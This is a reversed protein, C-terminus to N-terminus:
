QIKIMLQFFVSICLLNNDLISKMFKVLCINSGLRSGVGGVTGGRHLQLQLQLQHGELTRTGMQLPTLTLPKDGVQRGSCWRSCRRAFAVSSGSNIKGLKKAAWNKSSHLDRM